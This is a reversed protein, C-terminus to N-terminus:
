RDGGTAVFLGHARVYREVAAPLQHRVARGERFRRRLDTSSIGIGPVDLHVFRELLPRSRDVEYGPRTVVVCTALELCREPDKWQDFNQAADAGVLFFLDAAPEEEHLEELTEVTYTTGARDVERRSVVFSPEDAVALEVMAIRHEAPSCREKMWPAGAVVFRVEDLELSVRACEAAVLHGLHPPDFTGGLLGIRRRERPASTM